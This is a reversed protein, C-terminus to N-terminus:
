SCVGLSDDLLKIKPSPTNECFRSFSQRTRLCTEGPRKGARDNKKQHPRYLGPNSALVPMPTGKRCAARRRGQKGPWAGDRHHMTAYYREKYNLPYTVDKVISRTPQQCPLYREKSSAPYTVNKVTLTVLLYTALM